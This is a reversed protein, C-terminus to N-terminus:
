NSWNAIVDFGEPAPMAELHDAFKGWLEKVKPANADATERSEVLAVVYGSGDDNMANIFHHMGPMGMVESKVDEMLATAAERSGPKMKFRTVRAFM